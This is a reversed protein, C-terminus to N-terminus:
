RFSNDRHFDRFDAATIGFHMVRGTDYDVIYATGSNTDEYFSIGAFLDDRVFRVTRRGEHTTCIKRYKM